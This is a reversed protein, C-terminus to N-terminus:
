RLAAINACCQRRQAVGVEAVKNPGGWKRFKKLNVFHGGENLRVRQEEWAESALTALLTSGPASM